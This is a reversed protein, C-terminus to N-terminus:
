YRETGVLAAAGAVLGFSPLWPAVPWGYVESRRSGGTRGDTGSAAAVGIGEVTRLGGARLFTM